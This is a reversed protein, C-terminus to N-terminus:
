FQLAANFFFTTGYAYFYRSDFPRMMHGEKTYRIRMQEYGGSRLKKNNLLNSASLNLRLYVGSRIRWSYGVNADLTFGGPFKEQQVYSYDLEKRAKDTRRLPNMSIFSRSFYNLDMGLWLYFPAQYNISLNAATQPTGSIHFGNWYIREGELFEESNDVSQIYDPNNTYRYQAMTGVLTASLTPTIKAEFGAEVGIHRSNINTIVVNSFARYGDDYFSMNKTQNLFETYFFTVRGKILPDRVVYSLETAGIRQPKIDTVYSNRTRPSIFAERFYPAKQQWSAHLVIYHRPNIKYTAGIKTTYNFFKLYDSSGKSNLPFLGRRQYGHRHFQQYGASLAVYGDVKEYKASLMGWLESAHSISLYHHDYKDGERIIRDPNDIDLQYKIPDHAFDRESFKDIDYWFDGGLLDKLVNFNATRNYRYNAGADIRYTSNLVSQWNTAFNFQKQDSHRDEVVYVSRAGSALHKGNYDFVDQQNNRNVEYLRDWDIYRVDERSNWLERTYDELYPSSEQSMYGYYSPLYRYYDPRPDPANQWNLASYANFGFRYGVGTTLLNNEDIKWSHQLQLVPEHNTRVRANRWKGNQKGMNPNYFHSGALQYAEETAGSAVGRETPAALALFSLSHNQFQKEVSLFYGWADYYQGLAYSKNGWRRSGLLTVAWGNKLLGTSYMAMARGNYTRNSGSLTFYSGKGYQSAQTLINLTGGLNGISYEAPAMGDKNNQLRTARNLGTWLFYAGYGNNLNNMEMGNLYQTQYPSDYGRTRFRMPSFQYGSKNTYPDRSATLLSSVGSGSTIEDLGGYEDYLPEALDHHLFQEIPTLRVEALQGNALPLDVEKVESSYGPKAFVWISSTAPPLEPTQYQGKTDTSVLFAQGNATITIQVEHIPQGTSADTVSGTIRQQATVWLTSICFILSGLLVKRM